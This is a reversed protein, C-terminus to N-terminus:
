ITTILANVEFFFDWRFWHENVRIGGAEVTVKRKPSNEWFKNRVLLIDGNEYM